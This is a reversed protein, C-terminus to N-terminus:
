EEALWTRVLRAFEAPKERAFEEVRSRRLANEDPEAVTALTQEQTAAVEPMATDVQPRRRGWLVASLVLAFLLGALAGIRIWLSLRLPQRADQRPDFGDTESEQLGSRFPMSEVTVVDDRRRNGGIAAIITGRVQEREAAPLNGDIWVAVSLGLLGGPAVVRRRETRNVEYAIEASKRQYRGSGGEGDPTTYTPIPQDPTNAMVGATGSAVPMSDSIEELTKSSRVLGDSAAPEFIELTEEESDFNMDAKVRVLAKGVGYLPELMSQLHREVDQEFARQIELRQMAVTGVVAQTDAPQSLLNGATDVITVDAPDLSEVSRAILYAIGNVQGQSLKSGPRLQLLVSASAPRQERVFLSKEPLAIHVRANEVADYERITRTLEGQLAWVYKVNREFDTSGFSVQQFIEFGVVGQKPLGKAALDLRTQYVHRRPVLIATGQAALRYSVDAERLAAVVEAADSEHLNAYLPVYEPTSTRLILVILGGFVIVGIAATCWKQVPRLKAWASLLQQWAEGIAGFAGM